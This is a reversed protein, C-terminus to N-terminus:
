WETLMWIAPQDHGIAAFLAVAERLHARAAEREGAAHRLDALTNHLAAARHRDDRALCLALARQALTIARPRDAESLVLVLSNLAAVLTEPDDLQEALNLGRELHALAQAQAGQQAALAGAAGYARALARPDDAAEARTLAAGAYQTAAGLDGRRRATLSLAALTKAREAPGADQDALAQAFQAEAAEWEGLRYHLEGTKRALAPSPGAAKRAAAYDTLAAAYNGALARLDGLAEHLAAREPHGTQLAAAYHAIAEANAALARAEDAALRHHTAALSPEGAAAAHHAIQAALGPQSAGILLAALYTAVRRHFLRRRVQSVADYALTRLREHGFAYRLPALSVEVVLGRGLLEELGDVAAEEAVAAAACLLPLDFARGIASAASVLGRAPASLPRLRAELLERARGPLPWPQDGAPLTQERLATLYEVVLFPVGESEAHLRSVLAPDPTVGSASALEEVAPKGLPALVLLDALGVRRTEALLTRLSHDAPVEEDRWTFLLLGPQGRLRRAIFALLDLSAGDAWHADDVLLVGPTPGAVSAFLLDTVAEFFQRRAEPGALPARDAQMGTGALSPVLRAIDARQATPIADLRRARALLTLAERLLAAIPAYALGAEGEYCRASLTVGGAARVNALLEEALATKGIGPPGAIAALAGSAAGAYLARVRAQEASRGVLL